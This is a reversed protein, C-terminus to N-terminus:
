CIQHRSGSNIVPQSCPEGTTFLRSRRPGRGRPIREHTTTLLDPRTRVSRLSSAQGDQQQYRSEGTGIDVVPRCPRLGIM